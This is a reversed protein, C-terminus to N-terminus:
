ENQKKMFHAPEDHHYEAVRWQGDGEKWFTAQVWRMITMEPVTGNAFEGTVRVNFDIIVQPPQHEPEVVASHIKTVVAEAFKHQGMEHRAYNILEPRSRVIYQALNELRNHAVDDAIKYLQAEVAERDTIVQRELAILGLTVLLIVGAVILLQNKGTQVWGVFALLLAAGGILGILLPQEMLSTM